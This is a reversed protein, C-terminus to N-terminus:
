IRTLGGWDEEERSYVFLAKPPIAVPFIPLLCKFVGGCKGGFSRDTSYIWKEM